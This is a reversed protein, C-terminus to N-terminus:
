LVKKYVTEVAKAEQGEPSINYATIVLTDEEPKEITTRWGWRLSPDKSHYYGLVSFGNGNNESESFMIETGTHASDVWSMQYEETNLKYGIIALGSVPEGNMAGHYEHLAFRGDLIMKISGRCQSEDGLQDPEFWVRTIGEWDGVLESLMRHPGETKSKEFKASM